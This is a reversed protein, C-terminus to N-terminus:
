KNGELLKQGKKSIKDNDLLKTIIIREVLQLSNSVFWYLSLGLPAILAIAVSMIPLTYNMSKTMEQMSDLQDEVTEEKDDEKVEKKTKKEKDDEKKKSLDMSIKM